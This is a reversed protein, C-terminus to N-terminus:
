QQIAVVLLRLLPELIYGQDWLQRILNPDYIWSNEGQGGLTSNYGNNYSNYQKIWYRERQDLIIQNLQCQEIIEFIFNEIGYQRIAKYLKNQRTGKTGEYAHQMWRSEINISQGIYCENTLTNTIKYIGIM